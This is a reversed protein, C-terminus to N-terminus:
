TEMRPIRQAYANQHLELYLCLKTRNTLQHPFPPIWVSYTSKLWKWWSQLGFSFIEPEILFLPYPVSSAQSSSMLHVWIIIKQRSQDSKGQLINLRNHQFLEHFSAPGSVNRHNCSAKCLWIKIRIFKCIGSSVVSTFFDHASSKNFCTIISM